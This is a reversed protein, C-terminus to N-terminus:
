DLSFVALRPDLRQDVPIAHGESSSQDRPPSEAPPAGYANVYDSWENFGTEQTGPNGSSNHGDSYYSPGRGYNKAASGDVGAVGATGVSGLTDVMSRRNPNSYHGHSSTDNYTALYGQSPSRDYQSMVPYSPNAGDPEDFPDYDRIACYSYLCDVSFLLCKSMASVIQVLAAQELVM